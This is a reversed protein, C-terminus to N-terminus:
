LIFLCLIAIIVLPILFWSSIWLCLISLFIATVFFLLPLNLKEKLLEIKENIKKIMILVPM